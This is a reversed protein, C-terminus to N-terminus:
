ADVTSTLHPAQTTRTLAHAGLIITTRRAVGTAAVEPANFSPQTVLLFVLLFTRRLVDTGMVRLPLRALLYGLLPVAVVCASWYPDPLWFLAASGLALLALKLWTPARHILPGPPYYLSLMLRHAGFIKSDCRPLTPRHHRRAGLHHGRM